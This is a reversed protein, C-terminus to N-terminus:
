ITILIVIFSYKEDLPSGEGPPSPQPELPSSRVEPEVGPPSPQPELPSGRVEPEVGPPSPQPENKL